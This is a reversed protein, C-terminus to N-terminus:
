TYYQIIYLKKTQKYDSGGLQILYMELHAISLATQIFM